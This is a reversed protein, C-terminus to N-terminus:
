VLVAITGSNRKKRKEKKREKQDKQKLSLMLLVTPQCAFPLENKAAPTDQHSYHTFTSRFLLNSDNHSASSEEETHLHCKHLLSRVRLRIEGPRHTACYCVNQLNRASNRSLNTVFFTSLLPPFSEEDPLEPITNRHSTFYHLISYRM